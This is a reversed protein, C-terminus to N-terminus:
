LVIVLGSSGGDSFDAAAVVIKASFGNRGVMKM